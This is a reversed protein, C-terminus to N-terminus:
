KLTLLYATIDQADTDPIGMPPMTSQPNLSPPDQIFKTLNQPNNPVTGMSIAPRTAVGALSPGLSGQAGEVGPMIHCVNCGYQAALQAGRQADAAPAAPQQSVPAPPEARNCAIALLLVFPLLKM